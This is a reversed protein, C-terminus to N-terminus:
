VQIYAGKGIDIREGPSANYVKDLYFDLDTRSLVQRGSFDGLSANLAVSRDFSAEVSDLKVGQPLVLQAAKDGVKLSLDNVNLVVLRDDAMFEFTGSSVPGSLMLADWGTPLQYVDVRAQRLSEEVKPRIHVLFEDEFMQMIRKFSQENENFYKAMLVQLENFSAMFFSMLLEIDVERILKEMDEESLDVNTFDIRSDIAKVLEEIARMLDEMSNIKTLDIKSMEEEVVPILVNVVRNLPGLRPEEEILEERFSMARTRFELVKEESFDSSRLWDRDIDLGAAALRAEIRPMADIMEGMKEQMLRDMSNGREIKAASVAEPERVRDLPRSDVRAQVRETADKETVVDVLAGQTESGFKGDVGYRPLAGGEAM